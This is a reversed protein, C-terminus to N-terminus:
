REGRKWAWLAMWAAYGVLFAGDGYQVEYEYHRAVLLVVGTVFLAAAAGQDFARRWERFERLGDNIMHAEKEM